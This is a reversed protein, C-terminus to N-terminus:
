MSQEEVLFLLPTTEPRAPEPELLPIEWGRNEPEPGQFRDPKTKWRHIGLPYGFYIM